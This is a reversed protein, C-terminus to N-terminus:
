TSRPLSLNPFHQATPTTVDWNKEGGLVFLWSITSWVHRPDSGCPLPADREAGERRHSLHSWRVRTDMSGNAIVAPGGAGNTRDGRHWWGQARGLRQARRPFSCQMAGPAGFVLGKQSGWLELSHITNELHTYIREGNKRPLTRRCIYCLSTRSDFPDIILQAATYPTALESPM